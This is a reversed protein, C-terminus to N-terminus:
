TGAIGGVGVSVCAGSGTKSVGVGWGIMRAVSVGSAGLVVTGGGVEQGGGVPQIAIM